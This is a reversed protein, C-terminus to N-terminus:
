VLDMSLDLIFGRNDQRNPKLILDPVRGFVVTDSPIDRDVVLAGAALLVNDGVRCDGLITSHPGMLLGDGIRPYKNKNQGITCGQQIQLYRGFEGYGIIAGLPHHAFFYEGMETRYFLNISCRTKMVFFLGDLLAEPAGLADLRRMFLYLLRTLHDTNLPNVIARGDVSRYYRGVCRANEHAIRAHVGAYVERYDAVVDAFGPLPVDRALIESFVTWCDDVSWESPSTSALARTSIGTVM